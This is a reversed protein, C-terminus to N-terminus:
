ISLDWIMMNGKKRFLTVRKDPLTIHTLYEMFNNGM